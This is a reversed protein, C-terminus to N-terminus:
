QKEQQNGDNSDRLNQIALDAIIAALQDTFQDPDANVRHAIQKELSLAAADGNLVLPKAWVLPLEAERSSDEQPRSSDRPANM